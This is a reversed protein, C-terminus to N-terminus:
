PKRISQFNCCAEITGTFRYVHNYQCSVCSMVVARRLLSFLTRLGDDYAFIWHRNDNNVFALPCGAELKYGDLQFMYADQGM